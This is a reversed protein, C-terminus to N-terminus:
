ETAIRYFSIKFEFEDYRNHDIQIVDNLWQCIYTGSSGMENGFLYNNAQAIITINSDRVDTVLHDILAAAKSQNCIMPLTTIYFDSDSTKDITYPSGDRTLRTNYGYNSTPDPYSPPYRLNTITGIQLDGEPIETPLSYEPYTEMVFEMETNFYLYPEEMVGKANISTMRSQFIGSDGLDPGYPFVGSNSGFNLLVSVGRGKNISNFINLFRNTVTASLQWTAKFTRFDNTSDNDWISYGKPLLPIHELALSIGTTYDYMPNDIAYNVGAVRIIM